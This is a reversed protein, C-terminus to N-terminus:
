TSAASASASSSRSPTCRAAHSAALFLLPISAAVLLYILLMVAEEPHSRRALGHAPPRAISCRRARALHDARRRGALLRPRPQPYLKLHQNTGGVAAISCMSGLALLYFAPAKCCRAARGRELQRCALKDRRQGRRLAIRSLGRRRRRSACSTRSPLALVVISCASCRCRAAGASRRSWRLRVAAARARRRHRHRSVRLGDGQRARRRVLAVAAGPEAAARRVRLRARQPPLLLLVDVARVHAGLGVLAVGAM